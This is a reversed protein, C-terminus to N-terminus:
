RAIEVVLTLVLCVLQVHLSLVKRWDMAETARQQQQQHHHSPVDSSASPQGSAVQFTGNAFTGPAENSTPLDWTDEALAPSMQDEDHSHERRRFGAGMQQTPAGRMGSGPARDRGGGSMGGGQYVIFYQDCLQIILMRRPQGRFDRGGRGSAAM